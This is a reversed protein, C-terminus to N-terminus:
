WYRPDMVEEETWGAVGMEGPRALPMVLREASSELRSELLGQSFVGAAPSSPLIRLVAPSEPLCLFVCSLRSMALPGSFPEFVL